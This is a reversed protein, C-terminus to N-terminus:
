EAATAYVISGADEDCRVWVGGGLAAVQPLEVAAGSEFYFGADQATPATSGIFVRHPKNPQIVCVALATGLNTWGNDNTTTIQTM